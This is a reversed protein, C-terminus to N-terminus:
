ALEFVRVDQTGSFAIAHLVVQDGVELSLTAGASVRLGDLISVGSPGVFIEKNGLNQITARTRGALPTGLTASTSVAVATSASSRNPADHIYLRRYMDSLMDARDNSASVASLTQSARSGVKVPNENDAADDAVTGVPSSWLAGRSNLKLAAYDGDTDVSSVLTDQRVALVFEGVDATTHASDEAKTDAETVTLTGAVKLNGNADTQLPSWDGDAVGSLPGAADKRVALIEFGNSGAAWAAGDLHDQATLVSNSVVWPSTSQTVAVTGTISVSSGSVDVKDTAFVLDRIDLDVADVTISGAGDGIVWPSTSQTVAVTGSVPQTVASGDVLLAGSANAKLAKVNDSSDLAALLLPRPNQTDNAVSGSGSTADAGAQTYTFTTSLPVTEVIFTGNFSANTVGSVIVVDGIAAGHAATTTITVVGSLRVAGSNGVTDITANARVATEGVKRSGVSEIRGSLDLRLLSKRAGDLNYESGGILVSDGDLRQLNQGFSTDFLLKDKSLM